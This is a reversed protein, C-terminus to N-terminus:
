HVVRETALISKNTEITQDLSAVLFDLTEMAALATSVSDPSDEIHAKKCERFKNSILERMEILLNTEIIKIDETM